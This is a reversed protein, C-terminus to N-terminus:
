VKGEENQMSFFEHSMDTGVCKRRYEGVNFTKAEYGLWNLYRCLKHSVYTKGRAPLGVMVICIFLMYTKALCIELNVSVASM